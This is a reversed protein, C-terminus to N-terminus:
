FRRCYFPLSLHAQFLVGFIIAFFFPSIFWGIDNRFWGVIVLFYSFDVEDGIRGSSVSLLPFRRRGSTGGKKGGVGSLDVGFTGEFGRSNGRFGGGGAM